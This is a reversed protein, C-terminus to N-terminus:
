LHLGCCSCQSSPHRLCFDVGPHICVNLIDLFGCIVHLTLDIQDLSSWFFLCSCFFGWLYRFVRTKYVNMECIRTSHSGGLSSHGHKAAIIFLLTM